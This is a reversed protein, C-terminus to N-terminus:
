DHTTKPDLSIAEIEPYGPVQGRPLIVLQGLQHGFDLYVDDAIHAGPFVLASYRDLAEHILAAAGPVLQRDVFAGTVVAGIHEKAPTIEVAM